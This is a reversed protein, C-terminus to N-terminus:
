PKRSHLRPIARHSTLLGTAPPNRKALQRTKQIGPADNAWPTRGRSNAPQASRAFRSSDTPIRGPSGIKKAGSRQRTDSEILCERNSIGLWSRHTIM